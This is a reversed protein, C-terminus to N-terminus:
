MPSSENKLSSLERVSSTKYSGCDPASCRRKSYHHGDHHKCVDAAVPGEALLKTGVRDWAPFHPRRTTDALLVTPKETEVASGLALGVHRVVCWSPVLIRHLTWGCAMGVAHLGCPM